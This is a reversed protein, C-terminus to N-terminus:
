ASKVVPECQDFWSTVYLSKQTVLAEYTVISNVSSLTGKLAM